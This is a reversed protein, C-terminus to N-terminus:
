LFSFWFWLSLFEWTAWGTLSGTNGSWHNLDSSHWPNLGQGHFKHMSCAHSGWGGFFLFFLFFFDELIYSRVKMLIFYFLLCYDFWFWFLKLSSASIKRYFPLPSWWAYALLSLLFGPTAIKIDYLTSKLVFLIM